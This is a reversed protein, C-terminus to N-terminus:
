ICNAKEPKRSNSKKTKLNDMGKNHNLEPCCIKGLQLFFDKLDKDMKNLKITDWTKKEMMYQLDILNRVQSETLIIKHKGKAQEKLAIEVYKWVTKKFLNDKAKKTDTSPTMIKNGVEKNWAKRVKKKIKTM